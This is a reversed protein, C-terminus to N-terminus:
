IITQVGVIPEENFYSASITHENDPPLDIIEDIKNKDKQVYICERCVTKKSNKNPKCWLFMEKDNVM